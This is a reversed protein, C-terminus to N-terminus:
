KKPLYYLIAAIVIAFLKVMFSLMIRSVWLIVVLVFPTLLRCLYYGEIKYNAFAYLWSFVTDYIV